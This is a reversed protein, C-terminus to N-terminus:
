GGMLKLILPLFKRTKKEWSQLMTVRASFRDREHAPMKKLIENIYDLRHRGGELQPMVQDQLMRKALNRLEAVAEYLIRRDGPVYVMKIAGVNRLFKLGQSASAKSIGLREILDDLALPQASIFLLGYIEGLSPAQGLLRCIQVFFAVVEIELPNLKAVPRHNKRPNPSAVTKPPPDAVVPTM